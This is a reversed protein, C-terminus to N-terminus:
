INTAALKPKLKLQAQCVHILFQCYLQFPQFTIPPQYTQLQFSLSFDVGALIQKAIRCILSHGLKVVFTCFIMDFYVIINGRLHWHLWAVLAVGSAIYTTCHGVMHWAKSDVFYVGCTYLLNPKM